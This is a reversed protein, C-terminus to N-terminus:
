GRGPRCYHHPSCAGLDRARMPSPAGPAPEQLCRGLQVLLCCFLQSPKGKSVKHGLRVSGSPWSPQRGAVCAPLLRPAANGALPISHQAGSLEWGTPGLALQFPIMWRGKRRLLPRQRVRIGRASRQREWQQSTKLVAWKAKTETLRGRRWM